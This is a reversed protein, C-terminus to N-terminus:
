LGPETYLVWEYWKGEVQAPDYVSPLRSDAGM